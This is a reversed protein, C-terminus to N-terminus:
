DGYNVTILSSSAGTRIARFNVIESNSQLIIKDSVNALGGIVATPAEVGDVRFRIQATEIMITAKKHTGYTASTLAIGGVTADITLQEYSSSTVIPSTPNQVMHSIQKLAQMATIATADTATSRADAKAGFTAHDGDAIKFFGIIATGTKLAVQWIKEIFNSGNFKYEKYNNESEEYEAGAPIKSTDMAEREAQTGIYSTKEDYSRKLIQKM